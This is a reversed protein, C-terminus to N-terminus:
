NEKLLNDYEIVFRQKHETEEKALALLTERSDEDKVIAALDNYLKVSREEKQIAFTLMDEYDMDMRNDIDMMYDSIFFESVVEGQKMVELELKSKHELEEEAFDECVKCMEPNKMRKALYKYLQNAEVERAIAFELIEDISDLRDM